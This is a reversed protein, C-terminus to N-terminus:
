DFPYDISYCHKELHHLRYIIHCTTLGGGLRSAPPGGGSCSKTLVCDTYVCSSQMDPRRTEGCCSSAGLRQSLPFMASIRKKHMRSRLKQTYRSFQSISSGELDHSAFASENDMIFETTAQINKKVPEVAGKPGPRQKETEHDNKCVTPSRPRTILEDCPRYRFVSYVCVCVL